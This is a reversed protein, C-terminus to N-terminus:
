RVVIMKRIGTFSQGEFGNSVGVALATFRYYYVGSALSSADVEADHEGADMRTHDFLLQVEVGLVNYIKLSVVSPTPLGFALRTTPNFPNPYNQSLSFQEPVERASKVELTLLSITEDSFQISGSAGNMTHESKDAVGQPHLALREVSTPSRHWSVTIPFAVSQLAIHYASRLQKVKNYAVMSSQTTFRVDFSGEPPVPPVDFKRVLEPDGPNNMLYLTQSRGRSDSLILTTSSQILDRERGVSVARATTAEYGFVLSGVGSFKAWHGRGSRITDVMVYSNNFAYISSTLTSGIAHLGSVPFDTSLSGILNWGEQVVITDEPLPEGVLTVLQDNEFKLWYGYGHVIRGVIQYGGGSSFSFANSVADPFLVTVSDNESRVPDSVINWRASLDVNVGILTSPPIILTYSQNGSCGTTDTATVTFEFTDAVTPTGSLEGSSLLTLGAPLTGSTISFSYPASGGNASISVSYPTWISGEPLSSPSVLITPCVVIMTYLTSGACGNEDTSTITFPSSTSATPTGSLLGSSSLTLGAPLSGSTTAYTYPATGGSTTITQNYSSGVLGDPLTGPSLALTACTDNISYLRSGTCGQADTATVTFSALGSESPTGSITGSSSLTLGAPLTGGTRAYVYPGTGGNAALSQNYSSGVTGGPLTSPALTITPCTDAITYSRSGTCSNADTATITFPSSGSATPTGSIIGNTALTLGAPLSGLTTAYTYPATGGTATITQNYPSGVTGGPLTSPSLVVSPCTAVITYARSGTCSNADTATITFPSSGSATPTGSITGNTALALGVPLSGLTTVYSYPGTGGTATISQNYVSGVSGNPLPPPTLTITPCPPPQVTLNIGTTGNRAQADSVTVPLSKAGVTTGPSVTALFTFVNDSATTDGNTGNDFLSQTGSGGISTLDGAVALATSTPNTGPTVTVTLVSANGATVTAPNSAGTGSPNTPVVVTLNISTSGNRAQADSISIPLSKAGATTGPTVTALYTFINDSATTDGNTGNDFLSQTGSGGISILDGVVALGTSTPNTGPTVAVRLVTTNGAIVTSPNSAGTGSPNTPPPAAGNPTLSFDDLALGDDSGTANVDVWRIWFNSGNSITLSSISASVSARITNGDRSGAAGSTDPTRFDLGSAATWTGTSLSTADLSYQFRLSDYRNRTGLRWEEGFYSIVLSTITSGTNNTFSAGNLPTLSGSLLGGFARDSNSAPGFSYTDGTSSSGTGATYTTNANTGSESLAWGSPVTSSTGTSALTNFDQTYASGLATLSIGGGGGGAAITLVYALAGTCSSADTATVTFNSTGSASPTGSLLGGSTLTLGAPLTGVTVAFTYPSTGGSATITQSYASGATGNSLSVPALTITPCSGSNITFIASASTAAQGDPNTVTITRAGPTAGGAITINVTAHTADTFTVSNVTVGGGNVMATLRNPFAAGADYLGSGGSATATIVVSLNSVGVTGSAPLASSPTAPPPALLQIARLAWSNTADCYGQFTWMTMNDTPDVVVQSYDGWRQGDVAEANYATTSVQTLTAAQTAGAADGSLRGSVAVGAFNVAGAYSTGLAMHGQGSMAVSPIWFGKPNSSAPDYLTGSQNLTPTTTMNQIEYWRSGNRGGSLSGVGGSTVQINHATWLSSVGTVTNKKLQAAYLRDDLADLRRNSAAGSHVQLIPSTTTPVTLFINASLSPTGGPTSVRRFALKSYAVADVGVFYGETATSDDNDVGQPTYPGATSGTCVQRFATVVLSGTLLASKRVVYVSSGLFATGAANFINAGIYLANADVGLTPYDAFGGTDANPTTGVLDHQFQYFTFSSTGSIVSSNSVAILVLNPTSVTIIVVFWRGSLRDYRIHPDSTGASGGVSTFFVDTTVNLGGLTGSKDFVKIRGNVVILVQTASVAGNCDPPIFGSESIRAGLFSTGVLQPSTPLLVAATSLADKPAPWQGVVPAKPNTQPRRFSHFEKKTPRPPGDIITPSDAQRQIIKSVSETIGPQGTWPQGVTEGAQQAFLTGIFLTMGLLILM